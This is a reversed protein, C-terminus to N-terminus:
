ESGLAEKFKERVKDVPMEKGTWITFADAGQYILMELGGITVAGKKEAMLLLKTKQPKYILDYVIHNENLLNEDEIISNDPHPTMGVPTANIIFKAERIKENLNNINKSASFSINNVGWSETSTKLSNIKKEDIDIVLINGVELSHTLAYLVAKAAGGAGFLIIKNENIDDEHNELTKYFGSHDTNYGTMKGDVINVTNVAGIKEAGEELNDLLPIITEKFPMTVNFGRIGATKLGTVSKEFDEPLVDFLLYVWDMNYCEFSMNHMLPSLSHKIPYGFLGCFVSYHYKKENM